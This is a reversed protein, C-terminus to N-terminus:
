DVVEAILPPLQEAVVPYSLPSGFAIAGALERTTFVSRSAATSIDPDALLARREDDSETTWILVDAAGLVSTIQDPGIVAPQDAVTLGMLTAFDTRWGTTALVNGHELRGQLLLVKKGTFAPHAAAVDAFRHEADEILTLMRQHQFVAM